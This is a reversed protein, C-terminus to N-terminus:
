FFYKYVHVPSYINPLESERLADQFLGWPIWALEEKIFGYMFMFIVSIYCM